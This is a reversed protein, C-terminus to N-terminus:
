DKNNIYKMVKDQIEKNPFISSATYIAKKPIYNIDQWTICSYKKTYYKGYMKCKGFIWFIKIYHKCNDCKKM